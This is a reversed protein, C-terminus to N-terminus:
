MGRWAVGGGSPEAHGWYVNPRHMFMTGDPSFCFHVNGGTSFCLSNGKPRPGPSTMNRIEWAGVNVSGGAKVANIVEIDEWFKTVRNQGARGGGVVELQPRDNNGGHKNYQISGANTERQGAAAGIPINGGFWLSKGSNMFVDDQKVTKGPFTVTQDQAWRLAPKRGGCMTELQGGGCGALRPGDVDGTWQLVHNDDGNGRIRLPRDVMAAGDVFQPNGHHIPSWLKDAAFGLGGHADAKNVLRLWEDQGPLLKFKGSTGDWGMSASGMVQLDDWMRVWRSQGNRGGGVIGLHPREPTGGHINYGMQGSSQEKQGPANGVPVDGAFHLTKTNNMLVDGNAAMTGGTVRLGDVYQPNGHHFESWLRKSAFGYNAHDDKDKNFLRLWDDTGPQLRYRDGILVKDAPAAAGSTGLKTKLQSAEWDAANIISM